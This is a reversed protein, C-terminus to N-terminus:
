LVTNQSTLGLKLHGSEKIFTNGAQFPDHQGSSRFEIKLCSIFINDDFLSTQVGGLDLYPCVM